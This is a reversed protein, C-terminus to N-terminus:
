GGKYAPAGFYIGVSMGDGAKRKTAGKKGKTGLRGNTHNHITPQYKNHYTHVIISKEGGLHSRRTGEADPSGVAGAANGEGAGDTSAQSMSERDVDGDGDGEGQDREEM